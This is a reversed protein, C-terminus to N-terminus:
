PNISSAKVLIVSINDTGGNDNACTILADVADTLESSKNLINKIQVDSICDTLGDSCLLYISHLDFRITQIQIEPSDNLGIARSIVHHMPMTDFDYQTIRGENLMQQLVTHDETLQILKKQMFGYCRSDGLHGVVLDNSHILLAVVTTAMEDLEPQIDQQKLIETNADFIATQLSLELWESGYGGGSHAQLVSKKVSQYITDVALKSAEAGGHHGGVGDAVVLLIVDSNEFNSMLINDENQRRVRGKDTGGAYIISQQNEM